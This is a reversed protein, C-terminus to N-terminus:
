KVWIYTPLNSLDITVTRLGVQDLAIEIEFLGNAPKIKIIQGSVLEVNFGNSAPKELYFVVFKEQKLLLQLSALTTQQDKFKEAINFENFRLKNMLEILRPLQTKQADLFLYRPVGSWWEAWRDMLGLSKLVIAEFTLGFIAADKATQKLGYGRTNLFMMTFFLGSAAGLDRWDEHSDLDWAWDVGLEVSNKLLLTAGQLMAARNLASLVKTLLEHKFYVVLTMALAFVLMVEQKDPDSFDFNELVGTIFEDSPKATSEKNKFIIDQADALEAYSLESYLVACSWPFSVKDYFYLDIADRESSHTAFYESLSAELEPMLDQEVVVKLVRLVELEDTGPMRTTANLFHERLNIIQEIDVAPQISTIGM